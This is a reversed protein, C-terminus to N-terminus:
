STSREAANDRQLAIWRAFPTPPTGFDQFWATTDTVDGHRDISDLIGLPRTMEGKLFLRNIARMFGLPMVRVANSAVPKGSIAGAYAATAERLTM